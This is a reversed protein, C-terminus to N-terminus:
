QLGMRKQIEEKSSFLTTDKVYYSFMKQQSSNHYGNLDRPHSLHFLCGKAYGIRYGLNSWREYREWDEPGWGYFNLNEMGSARYARANVLFAGGRMGPGYPAFMMKKFDELM